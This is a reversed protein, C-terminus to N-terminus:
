AHLIFSISGFAPWFWNTEDIQLSKPLLVRFPHILSINFLYQFTILFWRKKINMIHLNSYYDFLPFIISLRFHEFTFRKSHLIWDNTLKSIHEPWESYIVSSWAGSAYFMIRNQLSSYVLIPHYLVSSTLLSVFQYYHFSVACYGLMLKEKEDCNCQDTILLASM